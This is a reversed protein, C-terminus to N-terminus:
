RAGICHYKPLLFLPSTFTAQAKAKDPVRPKTETGDMLAQLTVLGPHLDGGVGYM